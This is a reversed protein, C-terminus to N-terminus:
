PKDEPRRASPMSAARRIHSEAQRPYNARIIEQLDRLEDEPKKKPVGRGAIELLIEAVEPSQAAFWMIWEVRFYNSSNPTLTQKVVGSSVHRGLDGWEAELAQGVAEYSHERCVARCAKFLRELLERRDDIEQERDRRAQEPDEVDMVLQVAASKM